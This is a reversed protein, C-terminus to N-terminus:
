RHHTAGRCHSIDSAGRLCDIFNPVVVPTHGLVVVVKAVKVYNSLATAMQQETHALDESLILLDPHLKKLEALTQAQLASCDKNLPRTAAAINESGGSWGCWSRTFPHLSWTQSNLVDEVTTLWM